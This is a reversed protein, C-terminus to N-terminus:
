WWLPHNCRPYDQFYTHIKEGPSYKKIRGQSAKISVEREGWGGMKGWSERERGRGEGVRRGEKAILWKWGNLRVM